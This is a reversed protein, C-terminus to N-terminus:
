DFSKVGRNPQYVYNFTYHRGNAPNSPDLDKYYNLIEIKAYFNDATRIVIIKGAIPSIQNNMFNYNYWGNGSGTPISFGNAGDQTFSSEDVTTVNSFLDEVIYAASNGNRSPEGVTGTDSGGNLAITTGRFAIDWEKDDTTISGSSFDFKVFDGTVTPPNTSYDSSQPAHLNKMQSSEIAILQPEDDKSCSNLLLITNLLILKIIKATKM